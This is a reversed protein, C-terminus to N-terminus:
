VKSLYTALNQQFINGQYSSSHFHTFLMKLTIMAITALLFFNNMRQNWTLDDPCTM